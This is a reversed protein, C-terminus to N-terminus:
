AQNMANNLFLALEQETAKAQAIFRMKYKGYGSIELVVNGYEGSFMHVLFESIFEKQLLYPLDARVYVKSISALPIKAEKKTHIYLFEGDTEAQVEPFKRYLIYPRIFCIFGVLAFFLMGIFITGLIYPNTMLSSDAFMIGLPLGIIAAAMVLSGIVIQFKLLGLKTIKRALVTM